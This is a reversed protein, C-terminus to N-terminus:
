KNFLKRKDQYGSYIAVSFDLAAVLESGELGRSNRNHTEYYPTITLISFV